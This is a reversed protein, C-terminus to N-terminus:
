SKTPVTFHFTTGKGTESDFWIEGELLDVFEKCLVLGFCTGKENDTGNVSQCSELSFIKSKVSTDIGTGNDSVSIKINHNEKIASLEIKGGHPTFKIANSLLNRVITKIMNRDSLIILNPSANYIIKIDKKITAASFLKINKNILYNIDLREYNVELKGRQMKAWHFLNQMMEYSSEAADHIIQSYESVKERDLRDANDTLLQSFGLIINFPNKLDHSIISFFKNKLANQEALEQKTSFLRRESLSKYKTKQTKATITKEATKM